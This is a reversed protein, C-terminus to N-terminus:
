NIIQSKYLERMSEVEIEWNNEASLKMTNQKWIQIAMENQMMEHMRTAINNANHSDVLLGIPYKEFIKKTEILSSALVPIGAAAYDFIKNPLSYRYNLNTDKDLTLGFAARCTYQMLEHYPLKDVFFVKQQLQYEIVRKKLTPLVDGSGVILLNVQEVSRMAEILEEAGRDVNIGAGQLIAFPKEILYPPLKFATNANEIRKSPVNRLVNIEKHYKKHYEFAISDNVTFIFKLKPFAIAEAMEWIRKKLPSNQLEPVETFYEHSDYVLPKRKLKSAFYNPLLTDLDNSHLSDFPHFLLYLFLRVQYELYFLVGKKFLLRMRKTSYTRETLPLSSNLLRGILLVECGLDFLTTCVKHVRQDSSLDNTVSIIVKHKKM